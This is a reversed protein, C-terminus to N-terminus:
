IFKIMTMLIWIKEFVIFEKSEKLYNIVDDEDHISGVRGDATNNLNLNISNIFEVIKLLCEPTDEASITEVYSEEIFENFKKVM